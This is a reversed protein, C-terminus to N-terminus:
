GGGLSHNVLSYRSGVSEGRGVLNITSSWVGRGGSGDRRHGSDLIQNNKKSM